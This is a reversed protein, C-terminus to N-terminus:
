FVDSQYRDVPSAVSGTVPSDHIMSELRGKMVHIETAQISEGWPWPLDMPFDMSFSPADM